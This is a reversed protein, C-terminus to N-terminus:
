YAAQTNAVPLLRVTELSANYGAHFRADFGTEDRDYKPMAANATRGFCPCTWNARSLEIPPICVSAEM